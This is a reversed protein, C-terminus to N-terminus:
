CGCLLPRATVCLRGTDNCLYHSTKYLFRTWCRYERAWIDKCFHKNLGQIECDCPILLHHSLFRVRGHGAASVWSLSSGAATKGKQGLIYSWLCPRRGTAAWIDREGEVDIWCNKSQNFYLDYNIYQGLGGNWWVSIFVFLLAPFCAIVLLSFGLFEEPSELESHREHVAKVEAHFANGVADCVSPKILNSPLLTYVPFVSCANWSLISFLGATQKLAEAKWRIKAGVWDHTMNLTM